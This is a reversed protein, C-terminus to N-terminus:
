KGSQPRLYARATYDVYYRCSGAYQAKRWWILGAAKLDGLCRRVTRESIGLLRALEGQGFVCFVEDEDHDYWPSDGTSGTVNYCSVKYRDWIAGFCLRALPDLAAFPGQPLPCLTYVQGM